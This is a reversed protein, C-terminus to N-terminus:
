GQRLLKNMDGDIPEVVNIAIQDDASFKEKWVIATNLDNVFGFEELMMQIALPNPVSGKHHISMSLHRCMIKGPQEEETYTVTYGMPVFMTFDKNLGGPAPASEALSEMVELPTFNERAYEKIRQIKAKVNKDLILPLFLM